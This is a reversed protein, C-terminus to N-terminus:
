EGKKVTLLYCSSSKGDEAIKEKTLVTYGMALNNISTDDWGGDAPGIHMPDFHHHGVPTTCVVIGGPRIIRYAEALFADPDEVHELVEGLVAADYSDSELGTRTGEAHHTTIAHAVLSQIAVEMVQALCESSHDVAKITFGANAFITPYVPGCGIDVINKADIKRLEEMIHQARWHRSWQPDFYQAKFFYNRRHDRDYIAQMKKYDGLSSPLQKGCWQRIAEHIYYSIRESAHKLTLAGAVVAQGRETVSRLKEIDEVNLIDTITQSLDEYDDFYFTGGRTLWVNHPNDRVIVPTGLYLAELPPLGLGEYESPHVLIASEAMAQVKEEDSFECFTVPVNYRDAIEQFPRRDGPGSIILPVKPSLIAMAKILDELGKHKALRSVFLVQLKKETEVVTDLLSYDVGALMMESKVGLLHLQEQTGPSSALVYDCKKLLEKKVDVSALFDQQAEKEEEGDYSFRTPEYGWVYAVTPVKGIIDSDLMSDSPFVVCDAEMPDGVFSFGLKMMEEGWAESIGKGNFQVTPYPWYLKLEKM